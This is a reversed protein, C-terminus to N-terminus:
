LWKIQNKEKIEKPILATLILEGLNLEATITELNIEKPMSYSTQYKGRKENEAKVILYDKETKIEIESKDFGPMDIRLEYKNDLLKWRNWIRNDNFFASFDLDDLKSFNPLPFISLYSM